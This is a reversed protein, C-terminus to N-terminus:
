PFADSPFLFGVFAAGALGGAGNKNQLEDSVTGGHEFTEQLSSGAQKASAAGAGFLIALALVLASSARIFVRGM